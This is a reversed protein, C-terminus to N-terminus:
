SAREKLIDILVALEEGTLQELESPAIQSAV